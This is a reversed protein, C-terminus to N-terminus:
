GQTGEEEAPPDDGEREVASADRIEQKHARMAAVNVPRITQIRCPIQINSMGPGRPIVSDFRASVTSMRSTVSIAHAFALDNCPGTLQLLFAESPRTWVALANNGLSTWGSLRNFYRFSNVPEGAHETFLALRETDSMRPGSACAALTTAVVLALPLLRKM